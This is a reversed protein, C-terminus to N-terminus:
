VKLIFIPRGKSDKRGSPVYVQEEGKPGYVVTHCNPTVGMCTGNARGGEYRISMLQM